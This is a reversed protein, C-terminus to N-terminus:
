RMHNLKQLFSRFFKIPNELNIHIYGVKYIIRNERWVEFGPDMEIHVTLMLWSITSLLKINSPLWAQVKIYLMYTETNYHIGPLRISFLPQQLQIGAKWILLFYHLRYTLKLFFNIHIPCTLRPPLPCTLCCIISQRLPWREAPLATHHPRFPAFQSLNEWYVIEDDM